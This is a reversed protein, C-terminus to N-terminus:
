LTLSGHAYLCFHTNYFCFYFFLLLLLGAKLCGRKISKRWNCSACIVIRNMVFLFAKSKAVTQEGGGGRETGKQLLLWVKDAGLPREQQRGRGSCTPCLCWIKRLQLNWDLGQYRIYFDASFSIHTSNYYVCLTSYFISATKPKESIALVNNTITYVEMTVHCFIWFLYM